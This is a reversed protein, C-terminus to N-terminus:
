SQQDSLNRKTQKSEESDAHLIETYAILFRDQTFRCSMGYAIHTILTQKEFKFCVGQSKEKKGGSFWSHKNIKPVHDTFLIWLSALYARVKRLLTSIMM